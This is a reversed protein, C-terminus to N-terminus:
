GTGARALRPPRRTSRVEPEGANFFVAPSAGFLRSLAEIHQRRLERKGALVESVISDTGFVEVLDRQRLGRDAVLAKIMEIGTLSPIDVNEDEWREILDSLLALYEDEAASRTAKALLRDIQAMTEDVENDDHIRRPPFDTLLEVYEERDFGHITKGTM